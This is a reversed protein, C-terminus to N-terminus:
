KRGGPKYVRDRRGGRAATKERPKDWDGRCWKDVNAGDVGWGYGGSKMAIMAERLKPWGYKKRLRSACDQQLVDPAKNRFCSLFLNYFDTGFRGTDAPPKGGEGEGRDRERDRDRDRQQSESPSGLVGPSDKFLVRFADPDGDRWKSESIIKELIPPRPTSPKCRNPYYNDRFWTKIWLYSTGDVEWVYVLNEHRYEEIWRGLQRTTPSSRGAFARDRIYQLNFRVAGFADAARYLFPFALYASSSLRAERPDEGYEERIIRDPM